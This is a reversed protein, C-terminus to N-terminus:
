FVFYIFAEVDAAATQSMLLIIASVAAAELWLPPHLHLKKKTFIFHGLIHGAAMVLVAYGINQLLNEPLRQLGEAFPSLMAQVATFSDSIKQGRFFPILILNVATTYVFGAAATIIIVPLIRRPPEKSQKNKKKFYENIAAEVALILGYAGGWFAFTWNAGHWVGALFMTIFVNYKHRLYSVRNGGLPIYMYDRIWIMLSIHWRRWFETLSISLYPMHFNVPLYYGLFIATGWAMDSYGSFDGYIQIMFAASAFWHSVSDYAGPNSYVLDVIPAMNDALVTKKFYGLLFWRAAIRMRELSFEPLSQLQPLFDKATVIPGAVLQPFFSVFLAFKVFSKEAPIIRRYVDITYSMSQFTFFSIGLPLILKLLFSDLERPGITGPSFSNVLEAFSLIFFDAYKYYGLVGLNVAVSIWLTTKRYRAASEEKFLEDARAMFLGAVYDVATSFLMLFGFQWEWSMYFYYSAGLLFLHHAKLRM